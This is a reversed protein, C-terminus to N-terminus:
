SKTRLIFDIQRNVEVSIGVPRPVMIEYWGEPQNEGPGHYYYEKFNRYAVVGTGVEFGIGTEYLSPNIGIINSGITRFKYDSVFNGYYGLNYNVKNIDFPILNENVYTPKYCLNGKYLNNPTIVFFVTVVIRSNFGASGLMYRGPSIKFRAIIKSTSGNLIPMVLNNM